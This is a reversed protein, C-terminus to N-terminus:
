ISVYIIKGSLYSGMWMGLFVIGTVIAIKLMTKEKTFLGLFHPFIMWICWFLMHFYMWFNLPKMNHAKFGNIDNQYAISKSPLLNPIIILIIMGIIIGNVINKNIKLKKYLFLWLYMILTLPVFYAFFAFTYSHEFKQAFPVWWVWFKQTFLERPVISWGIILSEIFDGLPHFSIYMLFTAFAIPYKRERPFKLKQLINYVRM